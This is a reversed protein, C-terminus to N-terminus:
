WFVLSWNIDSKCSAPDLLYDNWLRDFTEAKTSPRGTDYKRVVKAVEQYCSDCFHTNTGFRTMKVNLKDFRQTNCAVCNQYFKHIRVRQDEDRWSNVICSPNQDNAFKFFPALEASLRSELIM